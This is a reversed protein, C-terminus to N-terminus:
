IDVICKASSLSCKEIYVPQESEAVLECVISEMIKKKVDTLIFM